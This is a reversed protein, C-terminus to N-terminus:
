EKTKKTLGHFTFDIRVHGDTRSYVDINSALKACASFASPSDFSIDDGIVSIVGMGNFPENLASTIVADESSTNADVADLVSNFIDIRSQVPEFKGNNEREVVKMLEQM